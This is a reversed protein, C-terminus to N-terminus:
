LNNYEKLVDLLKEKLNDSAFSHKVADENMKIYDHTEFNFTNYLKLYEDNLTINSVTTNDTNINFLIRKKYFEYIPHKDYTSVANTQVNSTPCIELLIENKRILDLVEESGIASTGHGIRKAGLEIAKKIESAPGNEGAHITFPINRKKAAKFLETYLELPYKDESGALDVGCVGKNLYEYACDLTKLNDEISMGRMMCLILNTNVNSNTKLGELVSEIIESYSLGEKTHFMPAFRIEAYIISEKELRDVLDKAILYLNEKTQMLSIPLDFRTLYESLNECKSPAAMKSLVEDESLGSLKSALEKSVSGDLHLHLEVKPLKKIEDLM